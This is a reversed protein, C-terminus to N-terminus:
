QNKNGSPTNQEKLQDQEKSSDDKLIADKKWSQVLLSQKPDSPHQMAQISSEFSADSMLSTMVPASIFTRLEKDDSFLRYKFEYNTNYAMLHLVVEDQFSCYLEQYKHNDRAQKLIFSYIKIFDLVFRYDQFDELTENIISQKVARETMTKLYKGVFNIDLSMAKAICLTAQIKDGRGSLTQRANKLEQACLLVSNFALKNQNKLYDVLGITEPKPVTIGDKTFKVPKLNIIANPDADYMLMLEVFLPTNKLHESLCTIALLYSLPTDSYSIAVMQEAITVGQEISFSPMLRNLRATSFPLLINFGELNQSIITQHLADAYGRSNGGGIFKVYAKNYFSMVLELIEPHYKIAAYELLHSKKGDHSQHYYTFNVKESDQLLQTLLEITEKISLKYANEILEFAKLTNKNPLM